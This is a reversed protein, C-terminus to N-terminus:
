AEGPVVETGSAPGEVLAQELAGPELGNLIWSRIGGAALRLATDLRLRMGGTVDEGAAGHLGELVAAANSADIKPVTEGSADYIGDTAGMWLVEEVKVGHAPLSAALLEFVAETSCISAGQSRDMLVDGLTVPLLGMDLALAVATSDIEGDPGSKGVLATSPFVSFPLNGARWLAEVVLRHLRHAHVQTASVGEIQEDSSIGEHISHESATVHGFSGSGHGLILEGGLGARHIEDALRSITDPRPTLAVQKDTILSGGLKVMTIKRM